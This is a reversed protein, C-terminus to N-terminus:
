QCEEIPQWTEDGAYQCEQKGTEPNTRIFVTRGTSGRDGQAGACNNHATCYAEVAAQIQAPTANLGPDGKDGKQGPVTSDRGDRGDQPIPYSALRNDIFNYITDYDVRGPDGKKGVINNTITSVKPAKLTQILSIALLLGLVALIILVIRNHRRIKRLQDDM